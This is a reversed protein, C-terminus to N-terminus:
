LVLFIIHECLAHSIPLRERHELVKSIFAVISLACELQSSNKHLSQTRDIIHPFCLWIHNFTSCQILTHYDFEWFQKPCFTCLQSTKDGISLHRTESWLSHSNARISTITQIAFLPITQGKLSSYPKTKHAVHTYCQGRCKEWTMISQRQSFAENMSCDISTDQLLHLADWIGFRRCRADLWFM